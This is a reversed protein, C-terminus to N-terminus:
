LHNWAIGPGFHGGDPFGFVLEPYPEFDLGMGAIGLGFEADDGLFGGLRHPFFAAELYRADVLDLPFGFVVNDGKKGIHGLMHPFRRAEQVLAHSRGVYEIGTERYLKGLGTVDKEAIEVGQKRRQFFAGQLVLFRDTHPAAVANM